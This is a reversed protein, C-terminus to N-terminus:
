SEYEYLRYSLRAQASLTEPKFLEHLETLDQRALVLDDALRQESIDDWKDLNTKLGLHSQQMPSRALWAQFRDEFWTNLRAEADSTAAGVRALPAAAAAATTLLTRRSLRMPM